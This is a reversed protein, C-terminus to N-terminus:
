KLGELKQGEVKHLDRKHKKFVHDCYAMKGDTISPELTICEGCDICQLYNQGSVIPNYNELPDPKPDLNTKLVHLGQKSPLQGFNQIFNTKADTYKIGARLHQIKTKYMSSKIKENVHQAELKKIQAQKLANQLGEKEQLGGSYYLKIIEILKPIKNDEQDILSCLADDDIFLSYHKGRPKKPM